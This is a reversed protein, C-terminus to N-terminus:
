NLTQRNMLFITYRLSTGIVLVLDINEAALKTKEWLDQRITGGPKIVPNSPDFWSGFVEIVGEQPCGAKQLLGDHNLCIIKGIFNNKSLIFYQASSM